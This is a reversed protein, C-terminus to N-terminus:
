GGPCNIRELANKTKEIMKEMNQSAKESVGYSSYFGAANGDLLGTLNSECSRIVEEASRSSGRIRLDRKVEEAVVRYNLKKRPHNVLAVVDFLDEHRIGGVGSRASVVIRCALLREITHIKQRFPYTDPVGPLANYDCYVYSRAIRKVNIRIRIRRDKEEESIKTENTFGEPSIRYYTRTGSFRDYEGGRYGQLEMLSDIAEVSLATGLDYDLDLSIRRYPAKVAQQVATGGKLVLDETSLGRAATMQDILSEVQLPSYGTRRAADEIHRSDFM